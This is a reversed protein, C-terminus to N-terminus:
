RPKWNDGSPKRAATGITAKQVIVPKLIENTDGASLLPLQIKRTIRPLGPTSCSSAVSRQIKGKAIIRGRPTTANILATAGGANCPHLGTRLWANTPTPKDKSSISTSKRVTLLMGKVPPSLADPVLRANMNSCYKPNNGGKTSSITSRCGQSSTLKHCETTATAIM